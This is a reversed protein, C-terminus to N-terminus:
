VVVLHLSAHSAHKGPSLQIAQCLSCRRVSARGQKCALPVHEACPSAFHQCHVNCLQDCITTFVHRVAPILCLLHRVTCTCSLSPLQVPPPFQPLCCCTSSVAEQMARQLPCTLDHRTYQHVWCSLSTLMHPHCASTSRSEMRFIVAALRLFNKGCHSVSLVPTHM